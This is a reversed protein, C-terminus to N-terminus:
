SKIGGRVVKSEEQPTAPATMSNCSQESARKKKGSVESVNATRPSIEEKILMVREGKLKM